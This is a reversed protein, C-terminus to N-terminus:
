PSLAFTNAEHSLMRASEAVGGELQLCELQERM